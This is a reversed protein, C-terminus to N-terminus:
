FSLCKYRLNMLVILIMQMYYRKDTHTMRSAPAMWMISDWDSELSIIHDTHREHTWLEVKHHHAQPAWHNEPIRETRGSMLATIPTKHPLGLRLHVPNFTPHEACSRKVRLASQRHHWHDVVAKTHPWPPWQPAITLARPLWRAISGHGLM